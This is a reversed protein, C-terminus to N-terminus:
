PLFVLKSVAKQKGDDSVAFVLYVGSQARRGNYDAGNWVAQGGYAKTEYVLRGSVDTIKINADETLNDIAILGEYDPRVPNPFVKLTKRAMTIEAQTAEGRISQLGKGSAIYVTGDNPDIAIKKINNDFLVSNETNFYALQEYGDASLFFVGNDTGIWKRNGGDVAITRVNESELQHGNFNDPNIVPRSGMCGDSFLNQSCNFITFGATTGVWMAGERDRVICNVNNSGLDNAKTLTTRQPTGGDGEEDFVFIGDSYAVWKYGFQDVALASLYTNPLVFNQWTGDAKFVVLPYLALNNALWLNNDEDFAMGYVRTRQADGIAQELACDPTYQDYTRITDESNIHLLGDMLSGIYPEKTDPHLAIRVHDRFNALAPFNNSDYFKWQGEKYRYTGRQDFKTGGELLTGTVWLTGDEDVAMDSVFKDKPGSPFVSFWGQANFRWGGSLAAAAWRDGTSDVAIDAIGLNYYYQMNNYYKNTSLNYETLLGDSAGRVIYLVNEYVDSRFRTNFHGLEFFKSRVTDTEVNIAALHQWVGQQYVMLTDDVDAFVKDQLAIVAKSEYDDAVSLGQVTGQKQWNGFDLLNTQRNGKFIGKNTAMYVTDAVTASAYAIHQPTFTTMIFEGLTLDLVTLGFDCSFYVLHGDCHIHHIYKDGIVSTNQYIAAFNVVGGDADVLDINGNTYGIVLRQYQKNYALCSIGMDSLGTVKNHLTVSHYTKDVEYVALDTAFYVRDGADAVSFANFYPLHSQWQGIPVQPSQAALQENFVASILFFLIIRTKM